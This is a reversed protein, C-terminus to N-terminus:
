VCTPARRRNRFPRPGASSGLLALLEFLCGGVFAGGDRPPSAFGRTELWQLRGPQRLVDPHGGLHGRLHCHGAVPERSLGEAEREGNGKGGDAVGADAAVSTRVNRGTAMLPSAM